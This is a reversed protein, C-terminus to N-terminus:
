GIIQQVYYGTELFLYKVAFIGDIVSGSSEDNALLWIKLCWEIVM